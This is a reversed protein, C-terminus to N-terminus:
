RRSECCEGIMDSPELHDIRAVVTMGEVAEEFALSYDVSNSQPCIYQIRGNINEAVFVHAGGKNWAVYVEARAGDGWEGMLRDIETKGTGPCAIWQAGKFITYWSEAARDNKSPELGSADLERPKAVVDFGRRRMEYAPVCRQCNIQWQLGESFHPNTARLDDEMSHEGIIRPFRGDNGGEKPHKERYLERRRANIAENIEPHKEPHSYVDYCYDVKEDYGEIGGGWDPVIKCDCNPHFHRVAGATLESEYVAGRSALMICFRCTEAGQPM